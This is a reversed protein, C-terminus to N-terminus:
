LKTCTPKLNNALSENMCSETIKLLAEARSKGSGVAHSGYCRSENRPLSCIWAEKAEECSEKGENYGREFDSLDQAFSSCAALFGIMCIIKKM